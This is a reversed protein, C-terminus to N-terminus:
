AAQGDARGRQVPRPHPPAQGGHLPGGDLGPERRRHARRVPAQGHRPLGGGLALGAPATDGGSLGRSELLRAILTTGFSPHDIYGDATVVLFDYYYWGRDIMEERSVPLFEMGKEM